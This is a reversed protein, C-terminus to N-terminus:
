KLRTTAKVTHFYRQWKAIANGIWKAKNNAKEYDQWTIM